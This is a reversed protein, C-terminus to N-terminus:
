PERPALFGLSLTALSDGRLKHWRIGPIQPMAAAPKRLRPKSPKLVFGGLGSM